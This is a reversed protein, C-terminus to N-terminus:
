APRVAHERRRRPAAAEVTVPLGAIAKAGQDRLLGVAHVTEGPRYVGRDSYFFLDTEGPMLADASAATPSTSRRRPDSRPLQLRWGQPRAMVARRPRAGTAACCAPISSPSATAARQDRDGAGRQQPRDAQGRGPEAAHRQLSHVSVTCAMAAPSPRSVSIPSWWGNRRRPPGASIRPSATKRARAQLALGDACLHRAPDGQGRGPDPLRDGVRKNRQNEVVM